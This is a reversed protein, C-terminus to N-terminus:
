LIFLNLKVHRSSINCNVSDQMRVFWSTKLGYNLLLKEMDLNLSDQMRVFWSTKLGDILLSKEMDLNQFSLGRIVIM